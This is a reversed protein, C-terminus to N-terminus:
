NASRVTVHGNDSRAKVVHTSDDGRPVGISVDGNDASADVAYERGGGPLDITIGGNDSVTDVLDPVTAFGLRVEGNDSRAVVSPSSLRDARVKGNDSRLKLAGSVDTVRVEGNSSSLELPRDFGSASVRGNASAATVSVDRPVKVRHRAECNNILAKCKVRLTLTGGEMAWTPDPGSGLVVWGDVQREVEVREVDAPELEVSADQADITLTKGELAFTKREVPADDADSSGCGTLALALLVVGGGLALVRGPM